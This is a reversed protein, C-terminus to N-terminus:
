DQASSGDPTERPDGVRNLGRTVARAPRQLAHAKTPRLIRM